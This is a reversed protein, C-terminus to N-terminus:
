SPISATLHLLFWSLGSLSAYNFASAAGAFDYSVRCGLCLAAFLGMSALCGWEMLLPEAGAIFEQTGLAGCFLIAIALEAFAIPWFLLATPALRGMWTEKFQDRFWDPVQRPLIKALSAELFMVLYLLALALRFATLQEAPLSIEM